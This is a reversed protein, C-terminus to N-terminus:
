VPSLRSTPKDFIPLLNALRPLCARLPAAVGRVRVSAIDDMEIDLARRKRNAIEQQARWPPASLRLLTEPSARL